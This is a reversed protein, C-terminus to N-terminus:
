ECLPYVCPSSQTTTSGAACDVGGTLWAGNEKYAWSGAYEWSQGTGDVNADGFTEIVDADKFLEIADDGNQNM